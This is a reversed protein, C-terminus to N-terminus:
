IWRPVRQKYARYGDGFKRELYAEERLVVGFHTTMFVIPLLALSWPLVALLTAGAYATSGFLYMPNRTHRFPGTEVLTTPTKTNHIPTRARKMTIVMWAFGAAGICVLAAGFGRVATPFQLSPSALKTLLVGLLMGTAPIVPPFVVVNSHDPLALETSM